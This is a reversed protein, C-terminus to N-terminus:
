DFFQIAKLCSTHPATQLFLFCEVLTYCELKMCGGKLGADPMIAGKPWASFSVSVLQERLDPQHM